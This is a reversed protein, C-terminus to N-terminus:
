REEKESREAIGALRDLCGIWGANHEARARETAFGEHTVVVETESGREHFEVRSWPAAPSPSAWRRTTRGAGRTSSSRLLPSRATPAGSRGPSTASRARSGIAAAPACIWRSARAHRRGARRVLADPAGPGDVGPLGPPALGPDHAHRPRSARRAPAAAATRQRSEAMTKEEKQPQELFRKLSDLRDEWFAQYHAIWDAATRMPGPVFRCHHVRGERRRALLGASELVRLHKSVAPLSM